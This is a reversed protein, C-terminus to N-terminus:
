GKTNIARFHYDSLKEIMAGLCRSFRADLNVYIYDGRQAKECVQALFSADDKASYARTDKGYLITDMGADLVCNILQKDYEGHFPMYYKPAQGIVEQYDACSQRLDERVMDSEWKGQYDEGYIGLCHQQAIHRSLEPNQRIWKETVFVTLQAQNQEATDLISALTQPDSQYAGMFFLNDEYSNGSSIPNATLRAIVNQADQNTSFFYVGGILALILLNIIFYHSKKGPRKQM